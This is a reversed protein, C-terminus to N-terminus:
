AVISRAKGYDAELVGREADVIAFTAEDVPSIRDRGISDMGLRATALFAELSALDSRRSARDAAALALDLAERARVGLEEGTLRIELSLRLAREAHHALVETLEDRRQGLEAALVRGFAFHLAARELKPIMGYAVDRILIHRFRYAGPGGARDEVIIGRRDLRELVSRIDLNQVLRALEDFALQEGIVSAAQVTQKEDATLADLRASLLAQISEPVRIAAVNVARWREGARVLQGDDILMRLIEECFLPNGESRRVIEARVTEPLDDIDLLRSVLTRTEEESLPELVILSANAQGAGWTPHRELLDPRAICVVLIRAALVREVIGRLAEIVPPESWQLDDIVFVAPSSGGVAEAYRRLAWGLEGGLREAPVDALSDAEAMGLMVSLRARVATREREDTFLEGLRHDLRESVVDRAEDFGIGADAQLIEVFPWWTIGTGYPLCRGRRVVVDGTSAVRALFEAVLRSKGVGANGVLTFLQAREDGTARAFTDVLLRLERERGVLRARMSPLGRAQDPVISLPRIARSVRVPEPKGKAEVAPHAEYEIAPRTLRETM